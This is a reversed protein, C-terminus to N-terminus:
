RKTWIEWTPHYQNVFHTIQLQEKVIKEIDPTTASAHWQVLIQRLMRLKNSKILSNMIRWEAGECNLKILEVSSIRNQTLYTVFDVTDVEETELHRDDTIKLLSRYLSNGDLNSKHYLIAKGTEDSLALPELQIKKIGYFKGELIKFAKQAPEFCIINCDYEEHIAQTHMGEYGGVDLFLSDPTLPILLGDKMHTHYSFLKLGHLPLRRVEFGFLQFPLNILKFLSRKMIMATRNM